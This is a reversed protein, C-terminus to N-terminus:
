GCGYDSITDIYKLMEEEPLTYVKKLVNLLRDNIDKYSKPENEKLLWPYTPSYLLYENENDGCTEWTLTNTDDLKVLFEAFSNYPEGYFTDDEFVSTDSFEVNPNMERILRNVSKEDLYKDIDRLNIGYGVVGWYSRSM